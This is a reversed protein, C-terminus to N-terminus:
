MSNSTELQLCCSSSLLSHPLICSDKFTRSSSATFTVFAKASAVKSRQNDAESSVLCARKTGGALPALMTLYKGIAGLNYFTNFEAPYWVKSFFRIKRFYGCHNKENIRLQWTSIQQCTRKLNALLSLIQKCTKIHLVSCPFTDVYIIVSTLPRHSNKM